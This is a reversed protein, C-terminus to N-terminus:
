DLVIKVSSTSGNRTFSVEVTEGVNSYLKAYILDNRNEIEFIKGDSCKVSKIVDGVQLKNYSCSSSDVSMVKVGSDTFTNIGGQKAEISDYGSIGFSSTQYNGDVVKDIVLMIPYIPVAFFLSNADNGNSDSVGLTNLGILNGQMDFLPGGSNGNSIPASHQILDEYVNGSNTAYRHEVSSIYGLSATNQLSFDIPTGLTIVQELVSLKNNSDIWRDAMKVFPIDYYDCRIIALDLQQNYWLIDADYGVEGNNLYVKLSYVSPSSIVYSVVHYNTAIYGGSHVAIGSGFSISNGSKDVNFITVTADLYENIIDSPTAGTEIVLPETNTITKGGGFDFTLSCGALSIISFLFVFSLLFLKNKM